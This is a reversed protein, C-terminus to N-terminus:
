RRTLAAPLEIEHGSRGRSGALVPSRVEPGDLHRSGGRDAREADAQFVVSDPDYWGGDSPSVAPTRTEDIPDATLM